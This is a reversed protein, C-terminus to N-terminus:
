ESEEFRQYEALEEDLRAQKNKDIERDTVGRYYDARKEMEERIFTDAFLPYKSRIRRELRKRRIKGLTDASLQKHPMTIASFTVVYGTDHGVTSRYYDIVEQPIGGGRKERQELTEYIEILVKDGPPSAYPNGWEIAYRFGDTKAM